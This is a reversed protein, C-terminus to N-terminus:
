KGYAITSVKSKAVPIKEAISFKKRLHIRNCTAYDTVRTNEHTRAVIQRKGFKKSRQLKETYIRGTKREIKRIDVSIKEKVYHM